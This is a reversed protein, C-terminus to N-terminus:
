NNYQGTQCLRKRHTRTNGSGMINDCRVTLMSARTYANVVKRNNGYRTNAYQVIYIHVLGIQTENIIIIIIIIIIVDDDDDDCWMVSYETWSDLDYKTGLAVM